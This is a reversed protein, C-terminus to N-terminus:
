MQAESQSGFTFVARTGPSAVVPVHPKIRLSSFFGVQLICRSDNVSESECQELRRDQMKWTDRNYQSQIGKENMQELEVEHKNKKQTSNHSDRPASCDVSM